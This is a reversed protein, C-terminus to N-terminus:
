KGGRNPKNQHVGPRKQKLSKTVVDLVKAYIKRDTVTIIDSQSAIFKAYTDNEDPVFLIMPESKQVIQKKLKRLTSM